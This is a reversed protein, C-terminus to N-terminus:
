NENKICNGRICVFGVPCRFDDNCGAVPNAYHGLFNSRNHEQILEQEEPCPNGSWEFRLGDKPIDKPIDKKIKMVM